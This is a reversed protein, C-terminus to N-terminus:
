TSSPVGALPHSATSSGVEEGKVEGGEGDDGSDSDAGDDGSKSVGKDFFDTPLSSVSFCLM